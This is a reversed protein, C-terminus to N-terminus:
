RQAARLREKVENVSLPKLPQAPEYWEKNGPTDDQNEIWVLYNNELKQNATKYKIENTKPIPLEKLYFFVEYMMYTKDDSLIPKKQTIYPYFSLYNHEAMQGGIQQGWARIDGESALYAEHCTMIYKKQYLFHVTLRKPMSIICDQRKENYWILVAILLTALSIYAELWSNWKQSIGMHLTIPRYFFFIIAIAIVIAGIISQWLSQKLPSFSNFKKLKQSTM